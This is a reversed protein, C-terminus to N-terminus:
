LEFLPGFTYGEDTKEYISYGIFVLADESYTRVELANRKESNGEGPVTVLVDVGIVAALYTGNKLGEKVATELQMLVEKAEPYEEDSYFGLPRVQLDADLVSGYPYFEGAEELFYKAQGILSDLLQQYQQDTINNM